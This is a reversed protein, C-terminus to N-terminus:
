RTRPCSRRGRTRWRGRTRRDRREVLREGFERVARRRQHEVRMERRVFERACRPQPWLWQRWHASNAPAPRRRRATARGDCARVCRRLAPGSGSSACRMKRAVSVALSPSASCSQVRLEKARSRQVLSCTECRKARKEIAPTRRRGAARDAAAAFRRRIGECPRRCRGDIACDDGDRASHRPLVEARGVDGAAGGVDGDGVDARRPADVGRKAVLPTQATPRDRRSRAPSRRADLRARADAVDRHRLGIGVDELHAGALRVQEARRHGADAHELRGVAAAGEAVGAEVSVWVIARM